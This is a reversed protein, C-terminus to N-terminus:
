LELTGLERLREVVQRIAYEKVINRPHPKHLNIVNGHVDVFKRRSGGTKGAGEEQFGLYYLLTALEEWTFDKPFSLLRQLLKERKSM